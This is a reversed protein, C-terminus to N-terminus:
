SITFFSSQIYSHCTEARRNTVFNIPQVSSSFYNSLEQLSDSWVIFNHWKKEPKCCAQETNHIIWIVFVDTSPMAKYICTQNENSADCKVNFDGYTMEGLSPVYRRGLCITSQITVCGKLLLKYTQFMDSIIKMNLNM